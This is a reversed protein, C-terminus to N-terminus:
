EEGCIREAIAELADLDAFAIVLRGSKGKGYELKVPAGLADSLREEFNVTDRDKKRKKKAISRDPSKKAAVLKETQRVSLAANVIRHAVETQEGADLGLLARAHGMEIEGDMLMRQVPDTLNLLRLLNSTAPRSKGIAKAAQEHTYGFEDILRRVGLAEEMANLDTRQMNEILAMALADKDEITRIIAPITKKGARMSARYRREGAVIEYVGDDVARVVIPNIVGQEQISAALEELKDNEWKSRPQYRGPKLKSLDLDVVVDGRASPLAVMPDEGLLTDLGRGLGQKKRVVM